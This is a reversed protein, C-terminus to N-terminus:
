TKGGKVVPIFRTNNYELVGNIRSEEIAKNVAYQTIKLGVYVGLIFVIGVGLTIGLISWVTLNM